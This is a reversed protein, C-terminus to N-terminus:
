EGDFVVVARLVVMSAVVVVAWAVVAAAGLAVLSVVVVVAWAVM